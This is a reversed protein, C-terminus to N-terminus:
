ELISIDDVVILNFANRNDYTANNLKDLLNHPIKTEDLIRYLDHLFDSQFHSQDDDQSLTFIMSVFKDDGDFYKNMYNIIIEGLIVTNNAKPHEIPFSNLWFPECGM